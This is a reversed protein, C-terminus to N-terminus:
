SNANPCKDVIGAAKIAEFIDVIDHYHHYFIVRCSSCRYGTPGGVEYIMEGGIGLSKPNLADPRDWNHSDGYGHGRIVSM